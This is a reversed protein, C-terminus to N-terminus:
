IGGYNVGITQIQVHGRCIILSTNGLFYFLLAISYLIITFLICIKTLLKLGTCVEGSINQANTHVCEACFWQEIPVTELPPRLCDLHYGSDCGDCLLMRDERDSRRCVECFTPDEVIEEDDDVPPPPAVAIERLVKGGLRRRVSMLTFTKRDM